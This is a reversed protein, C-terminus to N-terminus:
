ARQELLWRSCRRRHTCGTRPRTGSWARRATSSRPTSRRAGTPRCATCCSPTRPRRAALPQATIAYPEFAPERQASTADEAGMSVWTDTALVDADRRLPRAPTPRRGHDLRRHRGRDTAGRGRDGPRASADAPGAITVHMGANAGGLLYSHAMNNAADGLYGFRLGALKGKHERITQLDALIQCPHFEDTLANIVPVRSAAAM